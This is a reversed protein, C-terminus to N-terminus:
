MTYTHTVVYRTQYAGTAPTLRTHGVLLICAGYSTYQTTNTHCSKNTDITDPYFLLTHLWFNDLYLSVGRIWVVKPCLVLPLIDEKISNLM